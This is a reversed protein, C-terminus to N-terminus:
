PSNQVLLGSARGRMKRKEKKTILDKKQIMLHTYTEKNGITEDDGFDPLDDITFSRQPLYM